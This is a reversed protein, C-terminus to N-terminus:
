RRPAAPPSATTLVTTGATVDFLEDDVQMRGTGPRDVTDQQSDLVGENILVLGSAAFILMFILTGVFIKGTM